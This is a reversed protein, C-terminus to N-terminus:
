QLPAAPAAPSPAAEQPPTAQSPSSEGPNAVQGNLELVRLREELHADFLRLFEDGSNKAEVAAIQGASRIMAVRENSALKLREMREVSNCHKLTSVKCVPNMCLENGHSCKGNALVKPAAQSSM